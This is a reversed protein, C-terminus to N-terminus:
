LGQHLVVKSVVDTAIVPNTLISGFEETVTLPDVLTVHGGTRGAVQGLEVARCDGGKIKLLSMTVRYLLPSHCFPTAITFSREPTNYM